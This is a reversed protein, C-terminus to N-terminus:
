SAGTTADTAAQTAKATAVNRDKLSIAGAAAGIVAAGGAPFATCFAVLDFPVGRGMNWAEFGLAGVIYAAVTLAGLFRLLEPQDGVGRFMNALNM